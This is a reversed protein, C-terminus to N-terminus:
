KHTEAKHVIHGYGNCHECESVPANIVAMLEDLYLKINEALDHLNEGKFGEIPTYGNYNKPSYTMEFIEVEKTEITKKTIRPKAYSKGNAKKEETTKVWPKIKVLKSVAFCFDYNSTVRAEKRDINELVYNRVIEYSTKSDISCPQKHHVLEPVLMSVLSDYSVVDKLNWEVTKTSWGSKQKLKIKMNVLDDPNEIDIFGQSDEEFDTQVFQSETTKEVKKYLPELSQMKGWVYGDFDDDYHYNVDELSLHKPIKESELSGDKLEFGVVKTFGSRLTEYTTIKDQEPYFWWVNSFTPKPEMGNIIYTKNEGFWYTPSHINVYLGGNSKYTKFKMM